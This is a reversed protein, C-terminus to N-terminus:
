PEDDSGAFQARLSVGSESDSLKFVISSVYIPNGAMPIIFGASSTV